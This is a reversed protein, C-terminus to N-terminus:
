KKKKRRRRLGLCVKEKKSFLEPPSLRSISLVGQFFRFKPKPLKFVVVVTVWSWSGIIRTLRDPLVHERIAFLSAMSSDMRYDLAVISISQWAM